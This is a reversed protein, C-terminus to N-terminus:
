TRRMYTDVSHFSGYTLGSIAGRQNRLFRV